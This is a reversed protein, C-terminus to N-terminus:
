PRMTARRPNRAAAKLRSSSHTCDAVVQRDLPDDLKFLWPTGHRPQIDPIRCAVQHRCQRSVALKQRDGM